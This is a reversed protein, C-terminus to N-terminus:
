NFSLNLLEYYNVAQHRYILNYRFDGSPSLWKRRRGTHIDTDHVNPHNPHSPQAFAHRSPFLISNTSNTHLPHLHPFISHLVLFFIRCGIPRWKIHVWLMYMM